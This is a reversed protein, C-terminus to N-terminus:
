IKPDQGELARRIRERADDPMGESSEVSDERAIRRLFTLQGNFRKCSRCIVNHLTLATKETRSLERDLSDSLMRSSEECSLTLVFWISRFLRTM